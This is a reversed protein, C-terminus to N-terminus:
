AEPVCRTTACSAVAGRKFVTRQAPREVVAHAAAEATLLVLDADCGVELGYGELGMVKAGGHTCVDLAMEVEDDRRFNNRLGLFMARELMDANGYPGWTDRIGDSGSCVVIGRRSCGSSRRRRARHRARADHDRHRAKPSSRRDASRCLDRDPTGLCFAHSITVKGQMGLARTREIILEMSFAGM